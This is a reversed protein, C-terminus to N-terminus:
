LRVRISDAVSPQGSCHRSLSGFKRMTDTGHSLKVDQPLAAEGLMRRHRIRFPLAAIPSITLGPTDVARIM